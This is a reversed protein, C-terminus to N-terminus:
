SPMRQDEHSRVGGIRFRAASSNASPSVTRSTAALKRMLLLSAPLSRRRAKVVGLKPADPNVYDFRPFGPAYKLEGFLSLGHRWAPEQDGARAAAPSALMRRGPKGILPLLAALGGNRVIDRRTLHL